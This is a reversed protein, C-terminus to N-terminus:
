LLNSHKKADEKVAALLCLVTDRIPQSKLGLGPAQLIAPLNHQMCDYDLKNQIRSNSKM